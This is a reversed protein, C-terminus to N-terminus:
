GVAPAPRTGFDFELYPVVLTATVGGGPTAALALEGAPGYLAALRARVNALGVGAAGPRSVEALGVGDDEVELRVRRNERRAAVRLRGAESRPAIGHRIANEVLPQLILHPVRAGLAGQEIEWEVRLRDEFRAAEIELYAAVFRM